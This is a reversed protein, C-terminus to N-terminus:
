ATGSTSQVSANGTGAIVLVGGAVGALCIGVLIMAEDSAQAAHLGAPRGPSLGTQAMAPGAALLMIFALHRGRASTM